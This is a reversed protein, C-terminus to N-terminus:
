LSHYFLLQAHTHCLLDGLFLGSLDKVLDLDLDLETLLFVMDDLRLFRDYELSLLLLDDWALDTM